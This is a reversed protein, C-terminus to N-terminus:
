DSTEDTESLLAHWTRVTEPQVEVGHEQRLVRAIQSYTLRAASTRQRDIWREVPEELRATAIERPTPNEAM